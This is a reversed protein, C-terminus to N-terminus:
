FLRFLLITVSQLPYGLIDVFILYILCSSSIGLKNNFSSLFPALLLCFITLNDTTLINTAMCIDGNCVYFDHCQSDEICNM